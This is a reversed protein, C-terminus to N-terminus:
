NLSLFKVRIFQNGQIKQGDLNQQALIANEVNNFSIFCKTKNSNPNININISKLDGYKSFIQILNSYELSGKFTCVLISVSNNNITKTYKPSSPPSQQQPQQPQQPQYQQAYVIPQQPQPIHHHHHYYYSTATPYVYYNQDTPQWSYSQQPSTSHLEGNTSYVGNSYHDYYNNSYSNSNYEQSAYYGQYPEGQYVYSYQPPPPISPLPPQPISQPPQPISIPQISQQQQQLSQQSSQNNNNNYKQPQPSSPRQPQNPSSPRNPINTLSSISNTPSPTLSSTSSISSNSLSLYPISQKKGSPAYKVVLPTEGLILSGSMSQLANTSYHINSFKIVGARKSKGSGADILVQAEIVEGFQSFTSKLIADTITPSLVRVYLTNSPDRQQETQSPSTTAGGNSDPVCCSIGGNGNNGVFPSVPPSNSPKSLKCLLTKYGVQYRNMNKIAECANEPNLFRVFGYGLSNGTKINVMVKTNVIEGFQEFLDYLEKESFNCPLYKVFVNCIDVESDLEFEQSIPEVEMKM